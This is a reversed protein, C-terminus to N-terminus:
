EADVQEFAEEIDRIMQDAEEKSIIGAFEKIDAPPRRVALKRRPKQSRPPRPSDSARKAQKRKM